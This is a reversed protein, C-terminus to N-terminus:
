HYDINTRYLILKAKHQLPQAGGPATPTGM